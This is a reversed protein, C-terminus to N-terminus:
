AEFIKKGGGYFIVIAALAPIINLLIMIKFGISAAVLGWLISGITIGIDYGTWYTGNAAGRRQSPARVICLALLTPQGMGFGAGYLIGGIVIHSISNIGSLIILALCIMISGVTVAFKYGWEGFKDIFMGTSPRVLLTTTSMVAFFLGVVPFGQEVAFRPVFTIITSYTITLMLLALAPRLSSREILALIRIGQAIHPPLKILIVLAMSIILLVSTTAFLVSFSYHEMVWLSVGPAIAMPITMTVALYGMGEGIRQPPIVDSAVTNSSTNSVGWGVGQIFRFIIFLTASMTWIYLVGPLMFLLLGGLFIAKRGYTDLAWGAIPRILVAGITLAALPWGARDGRGSLLELFLPLTQPQSHFYFFLALSSLCVLLYDRTWLKPKGEDKALAALNSM